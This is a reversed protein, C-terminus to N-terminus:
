AFRGSDTGSRIACTSGYSWSEVRMAFKQPTLVALSRPLVTSMEISQDMAMALLAPEWLNQAVGAVEAV